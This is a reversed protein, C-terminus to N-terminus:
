KIQTLNKKSGKNSVEQQLNGAQGAILWILPIDNGLQTLARGLRSRDSFRLEPWDLDKLALHLVRALRGCLVAQSHNVLNAEQCLVDRCSDDGRTVTPPTSARLTTRRM